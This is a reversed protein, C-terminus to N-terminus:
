LTESQGIEHLEVARWRQLTLRPTKLLVALTCLHGYWDMMPTFASRFIVGMPTM